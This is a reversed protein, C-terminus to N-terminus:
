YGCVTGSTATTGHRRARRASVKDGTLAADSCYGRSRQRLPGASCAPAISKAGDTMRVADTSSAPKHWTLSHRGRLLGIFRTWHAVGQHTFRRHLVSM